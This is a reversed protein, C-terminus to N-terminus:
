GTAGVAGAEAEGDGFADKGAMVAVDLEAGGAVGAGGDAEDEGERFRLGQSIRPLVVLQNLILGYFCGLWAFFRLSM